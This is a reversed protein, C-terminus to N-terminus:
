IAIICFQMAEWLFCFGMGVWLYCHLLAIVHEAAAGERGFM